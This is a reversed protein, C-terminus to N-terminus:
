KENYIKKNLFDCIMHELSLHIDEIRGYHNSKIHIYQNVMKKAKGGDFGLIGITHAEKKQAYKLAEIINPSNGSGSICIVVDEPELLCKLQQTFIYKYSLDNSVATLISINDNLSIVRFKHKNKAAVNQSLDCAFHSSTSASGGNGMIFIKKQNKYAKYLTNIVSEIQILDISDLDNKLKTIYNKLYSNNM